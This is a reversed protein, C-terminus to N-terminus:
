HVSHSVSIQNDIIDVITGCDSCVFTIFYITTIVQCTSGNHNHYDTKTSETTNFSHINTHDCTGGESAQVAFGNFLLGLVMISALIKKKM